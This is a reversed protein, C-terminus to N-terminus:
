SIFLCIIFHSRDVGDEKIYDCVMQIDEDNCDVLEGIHRFYTWPYAEMFKRKLGIKFKTVSGPYESKIRDFIDEHFVEFFEDADKIDVKFWINFISSPGIEFKTPTFKDTIEHLFEKLSEKYKDQIEKFLKDKEDLMKRTFSEFLLLNM